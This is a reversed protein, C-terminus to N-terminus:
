MVIFLRRASFLPILSLQLCSYIPIPLENKVDTQNRTLHYNKNFFLLVKCAFDVGLNQESFSKKLHIARNEM